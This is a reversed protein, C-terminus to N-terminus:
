KQLENQLIIIQENLLDIQLQIEEKTPLPAIQKSANDVATKWNNYRATKEANISNENKIEWQALTYYIADNFNAEKIMVQLKVEQGKTDFIPPDSIIAGFAITTPIFLAILWKWYKKILNKIM